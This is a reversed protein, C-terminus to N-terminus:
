GPSQAGTRHAVYGAMIADYIWGGLVEYGAHNLHKHDKAGLPPKMKMWRRLSGPGGMAAYSDFFACGAQRAAERQGEVIVEVHEAEIKYELSRGRDTVGIILCSAVPKGAMVRQVAELYEKAHGAQTLKGNAVRRTDNGGYTFAILEPDRHRIQGAIHAPDWGLLRTTFTGLMSFQDWVVGPGETELVIGYGRVSGNGRVRMSIAHPGQPVDIAHFRDELADAETDIITPEGDDIRNEFSAGKPQAAYWVEFHAVEDGLEHKRTRITTEAFHVPAGEHTIGVLDYRYEVGASTSRDRWTVMPGDATLYPSVEFATARNESRHIVFGALADIDGVRWSLVVDGSDEAARFESIQVSVPQSQRIALGHHGDSSGVAIFNSNPVPVIEQGYDFAHHTKWATISGDARLGISHVWGAAIAVFDSGLNPPLSQAVYGWQVISGDSKLGLCHSNGAAIAVFDTNPEPVAALIESQSGGGWVLVSGDARLGMGHYSGAAIAVFDSNPEPVLAGDTSGWGVISGDSRLGLSHREGAAIAVFDTNPAPVSSQGFGDDGWAAITGDARLALSHWDGATIATFGGNPPPVDLQGSANSGWAVITGSVTLGLTHVGGGSVAMFDVNPAPVDIQGAHNRGWGVIEGSSQVSGPSALVVVLVFVHLFSPRWTM